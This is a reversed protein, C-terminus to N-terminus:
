LSAPSRTSAQAVAIGDVFLYMVDHEAHDRSAFTQCDQWLRRTVISLASKTPVTVSSSSRCGSVRLSDAGSERRQGQGM